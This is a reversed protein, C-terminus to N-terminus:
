SALFFEENERQFTNLYQEARKRKIEREEDTCSYKSIMKFLFFSILLVAIVITNTEYSHVECLINEENLHAKM